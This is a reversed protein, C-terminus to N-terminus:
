ILVNDSLKSKFIHTVFFCKSLASRGLLGIGRYYYFFDKLFFGPYITIRIVVLNKDNIGQTM